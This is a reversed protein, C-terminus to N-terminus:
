TSVKLLLAEVVGGKERVVGVKMAGVEISSSPSVRFMQLYYSYMSFFFSFVSVCDSGLLRMVSSVSCFGSNKTGFDQGGWWLVWFKPSGKAGGWDDADECFFLIELILVLYIVTVVFYM